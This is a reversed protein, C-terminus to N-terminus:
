IKGQGRIDTLCYRGKQLDLMGTLCKLLTSKGAGNPGLLGYVCNKPICLSVQDIARQKHFVKTIHNMEVLNESCGTNNKEKM